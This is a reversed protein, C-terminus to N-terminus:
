PASDSRCGLGDVGVKPCHHAPVCVPDLISGEGNIADEEVNWLVLVIALIRKVAVEDAIVLMVPCHDVVLIVGDGELEVIFPVLAERPVHNAVRSV